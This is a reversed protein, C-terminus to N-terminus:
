AMWACATPRRARVRAPAELVGAAAARTAAGGAAGELDLRARDRGDVLIGRDQRIAAVARGRAGLRQREHHMEHAVDVLRQMGTIAVVKAAVLELHLELALAAIQM